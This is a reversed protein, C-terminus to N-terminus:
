RTGDRWFDVLGARFGYLEYNGRLLDPGIDELAGASYLDVFYFRDLVFVDPGVCAAFASRRASWYIPWETVTIKVAVSPNKDVFM